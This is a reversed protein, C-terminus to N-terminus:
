CSAILVIAVVVVAALLLFYLWIKAWLWRILQSLLLRIVKWLLRLIESIVKM